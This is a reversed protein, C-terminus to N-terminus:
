RVSRWSAMCTAAWRGESRTVCPQSSSHGDRTWQARARATHCATQWLLRSVNLTQGRCSKLLTVLAVSSYPAGRRTGSDRGRGAARRFAIRLTDDLHCV